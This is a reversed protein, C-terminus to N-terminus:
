LQRNHEPVLFEAAEPWDVEGPSSNADYGCPFRFASTGDIYQLYKNSTVFRDLQGLASDRITDKIKSIPLRDARSNSQSQLVLPISLPLINYHFIHFQHNPIPDILNICFNIM